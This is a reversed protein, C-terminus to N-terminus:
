KVWASLKISISLVKFVSISVWKLLVIAIFSCFARTDSQWPVQGCSTVTVKCTCFAAFHVIRTHINHVFCSDTECHHVSDLNHLVYQVKYLYVSPLLQLGVWPALLRSSFFFFALSTFGSCTMVVIVRLLRVESSRVDTQPGTASPPSQEKSAKKEWDGRTCNVIHRQFFTSTSSGFTFAHEHARM